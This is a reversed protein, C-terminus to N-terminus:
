FAVKIIEDKKQCSTFSREMISHAKIRYIYIIGYKLSMKMM